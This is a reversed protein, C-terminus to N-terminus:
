EFVADEDEEEASVEVEEPEQPVDVVQRRGVTRLVGVMGQPIVSGGQKVDLQEFKRWLDIATAQEKYNRPPRIQRFGQVVLRRMLAAAAKQFQEPPADILYALRDVELPALAPPELDETLALLDSPLPLAPKRPPRPM